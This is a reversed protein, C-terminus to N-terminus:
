VLGLFFCIILNQGIPHQKLLTWLWGPLDFVASTIRVSSRHRESQPKQSAEFEPDPVKKRGPEGIPLLPDLSRGTSSEMQSLPSSSQSVPLDHCQLSLTFSSHSFSGLKLLKEETDCM